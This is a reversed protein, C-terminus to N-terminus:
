MYCWRLGIAKWVQPLTNREFAHRDELSMLERQMAAKWIDNDLWAIAEFYSEPTKSLDFIHSCTFHQYDLSTLLCYNVITDLEHFALDDVFNTSFIDDMISFSVFDEAVDAEQQHHVPKALQPSAPCEDVFTFWKLLHKVKQHQTLSTHLILIIPLPDSPSSTSEDIKCIPALHGPVSENFIIDQSFHHKGQLDNVLWGISDEEYGVFIAEFYHLGSKSCLEPPIIVFCQCGWVCLHSLNHKHCNMMEYATIGSPLTVTPMFNHLCNM